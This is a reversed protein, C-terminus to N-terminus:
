ALKTGLLKQVVRALPSLPLHLKVAKGTKVVFAGSLSTLRSEVGKGGSLRLGATCTHEWLAPVSTVQARPKTKREAVKSSERVPLLQNLCSGNWVTAMQLWLYQVVVLLMGLLLCSFSQFLFCINGWLSLYCYCCVQCSLIKLWFHALYISKCGTKFRKKLSTLTSTKPFFTYFM